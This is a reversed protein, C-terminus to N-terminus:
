LGKTGPEFGPPGLGSPKRRQFWALSATFNLDVFRQIRGLQLEGGRTPLEADGSRSSNDHVLGDTGDFFLLVFGVRVRELHAIRDTNMRPNHLSVLFSNLYKGAYHDPAFAAPQIFCKSHAPDG